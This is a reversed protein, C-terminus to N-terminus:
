PIEDVVFAGDARCSPLDTKRVALHSLILVGVLTVLSGVLIVVALRREPKEELTDLFNRCRSQPERADSPQVSPEDASPSPLEFSVRNPNVDVSFSFIRGLNYRDGSGRQGHRFLARCQFVYCITNFFGGFCYLVSGIQFELDVPKSKVQFLFCFYWHTVFFNLLFAWNKSWVRDQIVVNANRACKMLTAVYSCLSVTFCWLTFITPFIVPHFVPLCFGPNSYCFTGTWHSTELSSIASIPVGVLWVYPTWDDILFLAKMWRVHSCAFSFNMCTELICSVTLGYFWLPILIRCYWIRNIHQAVVAPGFQVTAFVMMVSLNLLSVLALHWLHRVLLHHSYRDASARVKILSWGCAIASSVSATFCWLFAPADNFLMPKMTVLSM